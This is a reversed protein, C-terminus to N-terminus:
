FKSAAGNSSGSPSPYCNSPSLEVKMGRLGRKSPSSFRDSPLSSEKPQLFPAAGAPSLGPAAGTVLAVVLAEGRRAKSKILGGGEGKGGKTEERIASIMQMASYTERGTLVGERRGSRRPM